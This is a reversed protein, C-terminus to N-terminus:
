VELGEFGGQANDQMGLQAAIAAQRDKLIEETQDAMGNLSALKRTVAEGTEGVLYPASALLNTIAESTNITENYEVSITEDEDIGALKMMGRVYDFVQSESNASFHRQETYATELETATPNGARIVDHEVGHMCIYLESKLRLFAANNADFPVQIQHPEASGDDGVHIVHSKILNVIFNADAIDDMGGYNKLVWYILESQSVNNVLQSSMLDLTVLKDLAGVLMSKNNKTRLQIIPLKSEASDVAIFYSGEAKNKIEIYRYPTKVQKVQMQKGNEEVYQTFGDPEYLTFVKPKDPAIQTYYVCETMAGTYDDVIPRTNLYPMKITKKNEGDYFGYGCRCILSERYIEKTVDDFNKGLKDKNSQNEFTIGNALLHSVHGDIISPFYGNRIKSNPSVLDKHALGKMDYIIKEVAEIEPNEINYYKTAKDAWKYEESNQFEAIVDEVFRMKKVDDNGCKLFDSHSLM